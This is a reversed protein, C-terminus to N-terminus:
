PRFRPTHRPTVVCEYYFDLALFTLLSLGGVTPLFSIPRVSLFESPSDITLFVRLLVFLSMLLYNLM